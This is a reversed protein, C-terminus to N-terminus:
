PEPVSTGAAVDRDEPYAWAAAHELLQGPSRPRYVSATARSTDATALGRGTPDGLSPRRLGSM